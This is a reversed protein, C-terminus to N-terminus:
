AKIKCEMMKKFEFSETRIFKLINPVDKVRSNTYPKTLYFRLGNLIDIIVDIREEPKFNERIREVAFDRSTNQRNAKEQALDFEVTITKGSSFGVLFQGGMCALNYEPEGIYAIQATNIYDKRIEVFM